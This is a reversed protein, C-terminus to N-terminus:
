QDEGKLWDWAKRAYERGKADFALFGLGFGISLWILASM